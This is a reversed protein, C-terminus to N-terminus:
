GLTRLSCVGSSSRLIEKSCTRGRHHLCRGEKACCLAPCLSPCAVNPARANSRRPGLLHNRNSSDRLLAALLAPVRPLGGLPDCVGIYLILQQAPPVQIFPADISWRDHISVTVATQWSICPCNISTGDVNFRAREIHRAIHGWSYTRGHGENWSGKKCPKSVAITM